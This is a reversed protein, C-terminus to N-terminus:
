ARKLSNWWRQVSQTVLISADKGTAAVAQKALERVQEGSLDGEFNYEAWPLRYTAGDGSKILRSFGRNEMARHLIAYRASNEVVLHLEVRVTFKNM